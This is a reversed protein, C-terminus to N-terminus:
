NVKFFYIGQVYRSLDVDKSIKNSTSSKIQDTYIISGKYDNIILQYDGKSHNTEIHLMGDTPNPYVVIEHQIDHDNDTLDSECNEVTITVTDSNTVGGRTANLTYTTTRTPTVQLKDVTAGTSWLYTNGGSGQLFTSKGLCITVDEGADAQAPPPDSDVITQVTVRVEDTDHCSGKYVAVSYTKTSTPKVTISNTKEGTNWLYTEGGVAVLTVTEGQTITRDSGADATVTKVSVIVEDTDSTLGDSVTVTYTKTNTPGVTISKTTAGNDWAYSNGGSATLTIQDGECISVDTGANAVVPDPRPIVKVLIEDTAECNQKKVTVVYNSTKLPNVNISATTEGTSWVYSDGGIATLLTSEGENISVDAGANAIVRNVTVIVEDTDTSNGDSVNVTYTKTNNPAVTISETTAGNSWEYISGGTATLTVSAGECIIKDEGANAVVTTGSGTSPNVTVRVEDTGECVGQTATVTYTTISTPNVLITETTEGTSWLYTDGGTATLAVTDGETITKDAGAYATVENVSVIVKDEASESGKSVTVKYTTTEDPSVTINQTTEGNSWEYTSGGSAKLITSEGKCIEVDEGANAILSFSNVEKLILIESTYPQLTIGENYNNGELDEWNGNLPISKSSKTENYVFQHYDPANNFTVERISVSDIYIPTQTNRVYIYFRLLNSPSNFIPFSYHTWGKKFDIQEDYYYDTSGNEIRLRYTNGEEAELDFELLYERGKEVAAESNIGGYSKSTTVKLSWDGSQGDRDVRNKSANVVTWGSDDMEFDSNNVLNESNVSMVTFQELLKENSKSNKGLGTHVQWGDLAFRKLALGPSDPKVDPSKLGFTAFTNANFYINDHMNSWSSYGAVDTKIYVSNNDNSSSFLKNGFIESGGDTAELEYLYMNARISEYFNNNKITFNSNGMTLNLNCYAVSNNDLTINKTGGDMYLGHAHWDKNAQRNGIIINNSVIGLAGGQDGAKGNWSYIAGGDHMDLCHNLVFNNRIIGANSQLNIGVYGLDRLDNFEVVSNDGKVSIAQSTYIEKSTLNELVAINSIKNNSIITNPVYSLVAYQNSGKFVNSDIIAEGSSADHVYIGSEYCYLFECKTIRFNTLHSGYVGNKNYYKLSLNDVDIDDAYLFNLGDENITNAIINLPESQSYIKLEGSNYYWYNEETLLKESNNIFFRRGPALTYILDSDLTIAGTSANFTKIKRTELVWARSQIVVTAGVLDSHGKLDNSAFSSKTSGSSLTYFNGAPVYRNAIIPERCLTLVKDDKFVQFVDDTGTSASWINGGENKWGTIQRGGTIIPKNGFGYSTFTLGKVKSIILNGYFEDGSKFAIVDGSNFSSMKTNVKNLTKWATQETLGDNSDNGSNSVYYITAFGTQVFLLM